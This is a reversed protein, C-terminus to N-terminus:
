STSTLLVLLYAFIVSYGPTNANKRPFSSHRFTPSFFLISLFYFLRHSLALFM